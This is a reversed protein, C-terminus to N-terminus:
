PYVNYFKVFTVIKRFEWYNPHEKTIHLKVVNVCIFMVCVLQFSSLNNKLGKFDEDDGEDDIRLGHRLSFEQRCSYMACHIVLYKRLLSNLRKKNM